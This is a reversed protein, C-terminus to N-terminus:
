DLGVKNRTRTKGLSKSRWDKRYKNNVVDFIIALLGVESFTEIIKKATCKCKCKCQESDTVVGFSIAM